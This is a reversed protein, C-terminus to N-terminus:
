STATQRTHIGGVDCSQAGRRFLGPALGRLETCVTRVWMLRKILWGFLLRSAGSPIHTDLLLRNYVVAMNECPPSPHSSPHARTRTEKAPQKSTWLLTIGTCLRLDDHTCIMWVHVTQMKQVCACMEHKRQRVDALAPVPFKDATHLTSHSAHPKRHLMSDAWDSNMHTWTNRSNRKGAVFCHVQLQAASNKAFGNKLIHAWPYIVDSLTHMCTHHPKLCSAGCLSGTM